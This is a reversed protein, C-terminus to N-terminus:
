PRYYGAQSYGLALWRVALLLRRAPLALLLPMVLLLLMALLLSPPRRSM